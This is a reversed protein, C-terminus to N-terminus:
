NEFVGGVADKASMGGGESLKRAVACFVKEHATGAASGPGAEIFVWGGKRLKAFDAVVCRSKFAKGIEGALDRLKDLDRKSPPFGSPDAIV